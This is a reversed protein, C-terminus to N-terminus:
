VGEEQQVRRYSLDTLWLALWKCASGQTCAILAGSNIMTLGAAPRLKVAGCSTTVEKDDISPM